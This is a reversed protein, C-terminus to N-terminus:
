RFKRVPLQPIDSENKALGLRYHWFHWARPTFWGAEANKIAGILAEREVNSELKLTDDWDGLCMVQAILRREDQMAEDPKKWWIYKTLERM